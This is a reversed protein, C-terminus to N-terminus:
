ERLILEDGSTIANRLQYVRLYQWVVAFNLKSSIETLKPYNKCFSCLKVFRRTLCLEFVIYNIEINTEYHLLYTQKLPVWGNAQM